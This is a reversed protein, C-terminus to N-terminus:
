SHIGGLADDDSGSTMDIMPFGVNISASVPVCGSRRSSSLAASDRNIQPEGEQFLFAHPVTEDIHRPVLRTQLFCAQPPEPISRTKSTIAPPAFQDLRLGSLM